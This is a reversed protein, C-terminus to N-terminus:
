LMEWIRQLQSRWWSNYVTTEKYEYGEPPTMSFRAPDMDVDYSFESEIVLRGNPQVSELRIPLNTQTDRWLTMDFHPPAVRFGTCEKGEFNRTGLPEKATRAALREFMEDPMHHSAPTDDAYTHKTAQKESPYLTLQCPVGLDFIVIRGDPFESRRVTPSIIFQRASFVCTGNEFGEELCSHPRFVTSPLAASVAPAAAKGSPPADASPSAPQTAVPKTETLPTSVAAAAVQVASPPTPAATAALKKAPSLFQFSVLGAVGVILVAGILAKVGVFSTISALPTIPGALALKGIMGALSPPVQAVPKLLETLTVASFAAADARVRRRVQEIGKGIRYTVTQRSVGLDAAIADQTKDELFHAILPLRLDDPLEAIAEDVVAYLDRQAPTLASEPSAPRFDEERRRRTRDARIRKLSKNTAVKHLWPALYAGPRRGAAALAEFCEQAVDEADTPNGLIRRCTHYVLGAYRNAIEKFAEADQRMNWQDLLQQDYASM